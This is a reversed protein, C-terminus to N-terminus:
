ARKLANRENVLYDLGIVDILEQELELAEQKTECVKLLRTHLENKFAERHNQRRNHLSNVRHINGSGIYIHGESNLHAYVVYTSCRASDYEKQYELRSEKNDLYHQRQRAIEKERNAHYYARKKALLEERSQM